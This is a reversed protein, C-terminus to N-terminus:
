KYLIVLISKYQINTIGM